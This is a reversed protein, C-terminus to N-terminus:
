GVVEKVAKRVLHQRLYPEALFVLNCARLPGRKGGDEDRRGEGNSGKGM